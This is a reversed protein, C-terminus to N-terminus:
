SKEVGYNNANVPMTKNKNVKCNRGRKVYMSRVCM